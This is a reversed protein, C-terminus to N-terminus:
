SGTPYYTNYSSAYPGATGDTTSGYDTTNATKQSDFDYIEPKKWEKKEM